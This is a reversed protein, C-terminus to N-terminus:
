FTIVSYFYFITRGLSIRWSRGLRSTRKTKVAHDVFIKHIKKPIDPVLDRHRIGGFHVNWLTTSLDREYRTFYAIAVIVFPFFIMGISSGIRIYSEVATPFYVKLAALHLGGVVVVLGGEVIM